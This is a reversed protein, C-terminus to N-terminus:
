QQAPPKDLWFTGSLAAAVRALARTAGRPAQLCAGRARRQQQSKGAQHNCGATGAGGTDRSVKLQAAGEQGSSWQVRRRQQRAAAPAGGPPQRTAVLWQLTAPVCQSPRPLFHPTCAYTLLARPTDAATAPGAARRRRPFQQLQKQEAALLQLCSPPSCCSGDRNVRCLYVASHLLQPQRVSGAAPWGGRAVCWAAGGFVAGAAGPALQQQQPKAFRCESSGRTRLFRQSGAGWPPFPQCLTGAPIRHHRNCHQQEFLAARM